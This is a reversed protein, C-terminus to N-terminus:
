QATDLPAPAVNAVDGGDHAVDASDASGAQGVVPPVSAPGAGATAFPVVPQGWCLVAGAATRACGHTGGASIQKLRCRSAREDCAVDAGADAQPPAAFRQDDINCSPTPSCDVNTERAGCAIVCFAIWTMSTVRAKRPRECRRSRANDLPRRMEEAATM